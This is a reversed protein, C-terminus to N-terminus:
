ERPKSGNPLDFFKWVFILAFALLFGGSIENLQPVM